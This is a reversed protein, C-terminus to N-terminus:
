KKTQSAAWERLVELDANSLKADQHMWLYRPPPMIHGRTVQAIQSAFERHEEGTYDEWHSLDMLARANEVDAHIQWSVPPLNSYWPWKTETSHCDACARQLIARVPSPAGFGSLRNQEGAVVTKAGSTKGGALILALSLIVASGLIGRKWFVSSFNPMSKPHPLLIQTQLSTALYVHYSKGRVM